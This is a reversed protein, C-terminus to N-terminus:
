SGSAMVFRRASNKGLFQLTYRFAYASFLISLAVDLKLVGLWVLVSSDLALLRTRIETEVWDFAQILGVFTVVQFGLAFIVRSVITSTAAILAGAFLAPLAM